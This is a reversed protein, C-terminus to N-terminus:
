NHSEHPMHQSLRPLRLGVLALSWQHAQSGLDPGEAEGLVQQEWGAVTYVMKHQLQSPHRGLTKM